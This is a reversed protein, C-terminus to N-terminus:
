RGVGCWWSGSEQQRDLYRCVQERVGERKREREEEREREERIGRRGDRGRSEGSCQLDDEKDEGDEEEGDGDSYRLPM